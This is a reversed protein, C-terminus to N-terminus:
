FSFIMPNLEPKFISQPNSLTLIKFDESEENIRRVFPLNEHISKELQDEFPNKFEFFSSNETVPILTGVLAQSVQRSPESKLL